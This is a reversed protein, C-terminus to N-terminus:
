NTLVTVGRSILTAKDTIGQGSPAANTGGSLNLLGSLFGATAVGRALIANVTVGNLACGDFRVNQGTTPQFLPISVTVLTANNFCILGGGATVLAPLSLSTLLPNMSLWIQNPCSQFLPLQIDTLQPADGLTLVGGDTITVLNPWAATKLTPLTSFDFGQDSTAQDFLLDTIGNLNAAGSNGFFGIKTKADVSMPQWTFGLYTATNLEPSTFKPAGRGCTKFHIQSM